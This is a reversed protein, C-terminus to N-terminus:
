IVSCPRVRMVPLIAQFGFLPEEIGGLLCDLTHVAIWMFQLPLFVQELMRVHQFMDHRFGVPQRHAYLM